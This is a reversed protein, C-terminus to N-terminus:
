PTTAVAFNAPLNNLIRNVITEMVPQVDGQKTDATGSLILAVLAGPKAAILAAQNADNFTHWSWLAATGIGSPQTLTYGDLNKTLGYLDNVAAPMDGATADKTLQNVVSQDLAVGNAELAPVYQGLFAQAQAGPLAYVGLGTASSSDAYICGGGLHAPQLSTEGTLQSVEDASVLTCPDVGTAGIPSPMPTGGLAVIAAAQTEAAEVTPAVGSAVAAVTPAADTADVALTSVSNAAQTLLADGTPAAQTLASEATPALGGVTAAVAALTSAVQTNNLAPVIPNSVSCALTVIMLPLLLAALGRQVRHSRTM